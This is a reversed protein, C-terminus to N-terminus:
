DCPLSVMILFSVVLFCFLLSLSLSSCKESSSSIFKTTPCFPLRAVLPGACVSRPNCFTVDNNYAQGTICYFLHALLRVALLNRMEDSSFFLLSFSFFILCLKFMGLQYTYTYRLFQWISRSNTYPVTCDLFFCHFGLLPEGVTATATPRMSLQSRGGGDMQMVNCCGLQCIIWTCCRVNSSSRCQVKEGTASAPAHMCAHMYVCSWGNLECSIIVGVKSKSQDRSYYSTDGRTIKTERDEM